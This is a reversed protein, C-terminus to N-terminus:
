TDPIVAVSLRIFDAQKKREQEVFELLNADRRLLSEYGLEKLRTYAESARRQYMAAKQHAYAAAGPRDLPPLPALELWGIGALGIGNELLWADMEEDTMRIYEGLYDLRGERWM